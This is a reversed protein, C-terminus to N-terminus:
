SCPEVEGNGGIEGLVHQHSYRDDPRVAQVARRNELNIVVPALLNATLRDETAALLALTLLTGSSGTDWELLFQDDPGLALEYDALITAVPLALFCLEPIELSQLHVLPAHAPEDILVFRHSGEFGPLGAPFVLTSQEDYALEGFQQTSAIPM